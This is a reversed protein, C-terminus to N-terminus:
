LNLRVVEFDDNEMDENWIALYKILLKKFKPNKISINKGIEDDKRRFFLFYGVKIKEDLVFVLRRAGSVTTAYVKILNSNTPIKTGKIKTFIGKQCIKFITEIDLTTLKENKILRKAFVISRM